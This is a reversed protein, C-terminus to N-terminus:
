KKPTLRLLAKKMKRKAELSFECANKKVDRAAISNCVFPFWWYVRKTRKDEKQNQDDGMVVM